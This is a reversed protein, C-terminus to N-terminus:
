VINQHLIMSIIEIHLISQTWALKAQHITPFGVQMPQYGKGLKPSTPQFTM